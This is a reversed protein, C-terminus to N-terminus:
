YKDIGVDTLRAMELHRMVTTEHLFEAIEFLARGTRRFILIFALKSVPSAEIRVIRFGPQRAALSVHFVAKGSM